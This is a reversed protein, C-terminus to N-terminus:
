SWCRFMIRPSTSSVIVVTSISSSVYSSIMLTCVSYMSFTCIRVSPRAQQTNQMSYIRATARPAWQCHSLSLTRSEAPNSCMCVFLRPTGYRNTRPSPMTRTLRM